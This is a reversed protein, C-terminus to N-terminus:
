NAESWGKGEKVSWYMYQVMLRGLEGSGPDQLVGAEGADPDPNDAMSAQYGIHKGFLGAGETAKETTEKTRVEDLVSRTTYYTEEVPYENGDEDQRMVTRTHPDQVTKYYEIRHKREAAIDDGSAM